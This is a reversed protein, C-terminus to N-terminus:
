SVCETPHTSGPLAVILNELEPLYHGGEHLLKTSLPALGEM